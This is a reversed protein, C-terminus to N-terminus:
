RSLTKCALWLDAAAVLGDEAERGGCRTPARKRRAHVERSAASAGLGARRSELRPLEWARRPPGGGPQGDICFPGVPGRHRADFGWIRAGQLDREGIAEALQWGNKREIKGLLGLLYHHVRERAESRVFRHGIQDHLEGLAELWGAVAASGAIGDQAVM